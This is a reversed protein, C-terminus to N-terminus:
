RRTSGRRGEGGGRLLEGLLQGSEGSSSLQVTAATLAAGLLAGALVDSCWHADALVRGAGTVGAAGGWLAWRREVLWTAARRAAAGLQPPTQQWQQGAPQQSPAAEEQRQQEELAQLAAPLLVFLLAGCIFTAATTHGSRCRRFPPLMRWPSLNLLLAPKAASRPPRQGM